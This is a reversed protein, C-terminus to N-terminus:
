HTESPSELTNNTIMEETRLKFSAPIKLGHEGIINQLTLDRIHLLM